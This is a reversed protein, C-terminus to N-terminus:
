PGISVQVAVVALIRETRETFIAPSRHAFVLAGIIQGTSDHVALALFSRIPLYQSLPFPRKEASLDAIRFVPKGTRPGTLEEVDTLFCNELAVGLPGSVTQCTFKETQPEKRFFGGCEAGSVEVTADTNAQLLAAIDLRTAIVRGVRQVTDLEDYLAVVGRNTETLEDNIKELEVRQTDLQEITSILEQNQKGLEDLVKGEPLRNIEEEISRLDLSKDDVGTPLKQELRVTTGNTGTDIHVGHMLRKAGVIGM